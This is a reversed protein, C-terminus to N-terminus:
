AEKPKRGRRRIVKVEGENSVKEAEFATKEQELKEKDNALQAEMEALSPLSPRDPIHETQIKEPPFVSTMPPKAFDVVERIPQSEDPKFFDFGEKKTLRIEGDSKIFDAFEAM